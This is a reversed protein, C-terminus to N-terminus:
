AKPVGKFVIGLSGLWILVAIVISGVVLRMGRDSIGSWWHRTAVDAARRVVPPLHPDKDDSLRNVHADLARTVAAEIRADLGEILRALAGHDMRCTREAQAAELAEVREDTRGLMAALAEAQKASIDEDVIVRRETM